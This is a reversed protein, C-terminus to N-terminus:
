SIHYLYLVAKWSCASTGETIQIKLAHLYQFDQINLNKNILIISLNCITGQKLHLLIDEQKKELPNSLDDM